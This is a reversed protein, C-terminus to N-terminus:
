QISAGNVSSSLDKPIVDLSITIENKNGLVALLTFHGLIFPIGEILSEEKNFFLSAPLGILDAVV